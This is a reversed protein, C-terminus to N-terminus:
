ACQCIFAVVIPSVPRQQYRTAMLLMCHLALKAIMFNLLHTSVTLFVLTTWTGVKWATLWSPASGNTQSSTCVLENRLALKYDMERANRPRCQARLTATCHCPMLPVQTKACFVRFNNSTLAISYSLHFIQFFKVHLM